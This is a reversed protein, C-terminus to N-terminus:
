QTASRARVRREPRFGIPIIKDDAGARIATIPTDANSRGATRRLLASQFTARPASTPTTEWTRGLARTETAHKAPSTRPPRTQSATMMTNM